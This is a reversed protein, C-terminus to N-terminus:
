MQRYHNKILKEFLKLLEDDSLWDYNIESIHYLGRDTNVIFSKWRFNDKSFNHNAIALENIRKKILRRM